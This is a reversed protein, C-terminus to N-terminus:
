IINIVYRIHTFIIELRESSNDNDKTNKNLFSRIDMKYLYSKIINYFIFQICSHLAIYYPNCTIFQKIIYIACEMSNLKLENM